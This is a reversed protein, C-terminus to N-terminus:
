STWAMTYMSVKGITTQEKPVRIFYQIMASGCSVACRPGHGTCSCWSGIDWPSMGQDWGRARSTNCLRDPVRPDSYTMKLHRDEESKVTTSLLTIFLLYIPILKFEFWFNYNLSQHQLTQGPCSSWLLYITPPFLGFIPWFQWRMTSFFSGVHPPLPHWFDPM